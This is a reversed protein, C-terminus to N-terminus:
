EDSAELYGPTALRQVGLGYGDKNDTVGGVISEQVLDLGREVEAKGIEIFKNELEYVGVLYPAAKEVVIFRFPLFVGGIIEAAVKQYFAAQIHYGYKTVSKTFAWPDAGGSSTTKIDAIYNPKFIDCRCRLGLDRKADRAFLSVEHNDYDLLEFATKHNTVADRIKTVQDYESPSLISATSYKTAFDAHIKKDAKSQKGVSPACKYDKLFRKPELIATHVAEGIRLAKSEQSHHQRYMALQPCRLMSRVHSSSVESRAHYRKASMGRVISESPM